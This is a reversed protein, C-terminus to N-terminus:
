GVQLNVVIESSLLDRNLQRLDNLAGRLKGFHMFNQQGQLLLVSLAEEIVEVWGVVDKAAGHNRKDVSHALDDEFLDAFATSYSGFIEM